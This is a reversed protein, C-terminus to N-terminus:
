KTWKKLIDDKKSDTVEYIFGSASGYTEYARKFVGAERSAYGRLDEINPNAYDDVSVFLGHRDRTVCEAKREDGDTVRYRLIGIGNNRKSFKKDTIRAVLLRVGNEDTEEVPPPIELDDRDIKSWQGIATDYYQLDQHAAGSTDGDTCRLTISGNSWNASEPVLTLPPPALEKMILGNWKGDVGIVAEWEAKHEATYTGIAGSKVKNFASSGVSPPAGAFSFTDASTCGSFASSGISAVNAGIRVETLGSCGGFTSQAISTMSDPITLVGTLARCDAFASGGVSTVGNPIILRGSLENCGNFACGGISRMSGPLTLPGKLSTCQAFAYDGINTVGDGIALNTLGSCGNFAYSCICKVSGPVAVNKLATCGHFACSGINTVGNFIILDTLGTCVQFAYPNISKVNGPITISTLGTCNYFAENGICTVGNGLALHKMGTCQYFARNGVRIVSSPITVGTINWEQRFTGEGISTVAYAGICSPLSLEGSPSPTTPFSNYVINVFRQLEAEGNNVVYWWQYGNIVQSWEAHTNLSILLLALSISIRVIVRM